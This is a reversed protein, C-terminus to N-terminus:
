PKIIHLPANVLKAAYAVVYAIVRLLKELVYFRVVQPHILICIYIYIISEM